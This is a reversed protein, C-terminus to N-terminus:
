PVSLVLQDQVLLNMTSPVSNVLLLLKMADMVPPTVLLVLFMALLVLHELLVSQALIEELQSITSRALSVILQPETALPVLPMAPLVLLIERLVSPEMQVCQALQDQGQLNM